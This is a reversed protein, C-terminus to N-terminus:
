GAARRIGHGSSNLAAGADANIQVVEGPKVYFPGYFPVLTNAPVNAAANMGILRTGAGDVGISLSFNRASGTPNSVLVLQIEILETAGATLVTTAGAAVQAPGWLRDRTAAM